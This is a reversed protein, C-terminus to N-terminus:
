MEEEEEYDIDLKLKKNKFTNYIFHLSFYVFVLINCVLLIYYQTNILGSLVENNIMPDLVVTTFFLLFIAFFLFLFQLFIHEEMKFSYFCFVFSMAILLIILGVTYDDSVEFLVTSSIFDTDNLCYVNSQYMGTRNLPGFYYRYTSDDNRITAQNNVLISDDSSMTTINCLVTADCDGGNSGICKFHLTFNEGPAVITKNEASVLSLSLLTVLGVLFLFIIPVLRPYKKLTKKM